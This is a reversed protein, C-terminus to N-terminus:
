RADLGSRAGAYHTEQVADAIRAAGVRVLLQVAATRCFYAGPGPTAAWYIPRSESPRDLSIDPVGLHTGRSLCEVPSRPSWRDSTGPEVLAYYNRGRSDHIVPGEFALALAIDVVRRESSEAAAYALADPIRVAEFRAGLPLVAIGHDQWESQADAPESLCSAYWDATRKSSM